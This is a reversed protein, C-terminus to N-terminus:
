SILVIPDPPVEVNMTDPNTSEPFADPKVSSLGLPVIATGATKGTAVEM